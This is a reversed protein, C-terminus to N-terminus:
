AGLLYREIPPHIAQRDWRENFLEIEHLMLRVNIGRHARNKDIPEDFNGIFVFEVVFGQKEASLVDIPEERGDIDGSRFQLQETLSM